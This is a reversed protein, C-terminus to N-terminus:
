HNKRQLGLKMELHVLPFALMTLCESPSHEHEGNCDRGFYERGGERGGERRYSSKILDPGIDALM